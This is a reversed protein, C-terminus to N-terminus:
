FRKVTDVDVHRSISHATVKPLTGEAIEKVISAKEAETLGKGKGM